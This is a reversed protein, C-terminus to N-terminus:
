RASGATESRLLDLAAAARWERSGAFRLVPRGAPDLLFTEPLTSISFTESARDAADRYVESPLEGGFFDRLVTWDEDLAVALLELRGERALLRGTELLAPLEERCPPCWTGWFHLLVFRGRMDALQRGAGDPRGLFLDAAPQGALKEFQLAPGRSVVRAKEIRLYLIVAVAQLVLAASAWYVWGSRRLREFM